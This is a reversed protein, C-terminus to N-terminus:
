QHDPVHEAEYAKMGVSEAVFARYAKRDETGVVMQKKDITKGDNNMVYVIDGTTLHIYVSPVHAVEIESKSLSGAQKTKTVHTYVAISVAEKNWEWKIWSADILYKDHNNKDVIKIIM